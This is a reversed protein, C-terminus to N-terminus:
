TFEVDELNGSLHMMFVLKKEERARKFADAPEKMFRVDTKIRACEVFEDLRGPRPLDDLPENGPEIPKAVAVEGGGNGEAVERVEAKKNGAVRREVPEAPPAGLLEEDLRQRDGRMVLYFAVLVLLGLFAITGGIITPMWGALVPTLSNRRRPATKSGQPTVLIADPIPTPDVDHYPSM